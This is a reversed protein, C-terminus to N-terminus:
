VGTTDPKKFKASLETPPSDLATPPNGATPLQHVRLPKGRGPFKELRIRSNQIIIACDRGREEEGAVVDIGKCVLTAAIRCFIPVKVKSNNANGILAV